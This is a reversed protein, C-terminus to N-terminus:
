EDDHGSAYMREFLASCEEMTDGLAIMKRNGITAVAKPHGTGPIFGSKGPIFGSKGVISGKFLVVGDLCEFNERYAM